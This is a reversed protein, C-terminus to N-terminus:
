RKSNTTAVNSGWTANSTQDSNQLCEGETESADKQRMEELNELRTM